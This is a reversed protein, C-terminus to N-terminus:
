NLTSSLSNIIPNDLLRHVIGTVKVGVYEGGM